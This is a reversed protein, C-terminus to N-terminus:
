LEDDNCVMEVDFVDGDNGTVRAVSSGDFDIRLTREARRGEAHLDVRGREPCAGPCVRLDALTADVSIDDIRGRSEGALEICDDARDVVVELDSQVEVENGRKNVLSAYGSWDVFRLLGDATIAASASYTLPNDNATLDDGGHIDATLEECSEARLEADMTGRLHVRGFAGTCDDFAVHVASGEADKTACAEPYLGVNPAAAAEAAATAPDLCGVEPLRLDDYVMRSVGTNKSTQLTSEVTAEAMARDLGQCGGLAALSVLALPVQLSRHVM